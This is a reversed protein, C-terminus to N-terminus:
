HHLVSHVKKVIAPEGDTAYAGEGGQNRHFRTYKLWVKAHGFLGGYDMGWTGETSKRPRGKAFPSGGGVFWSSYKGDVSCAAWPAVCHPHGSRKCDSMRYRLPPCDGRDRDGPKNIIPKRPHGPDTCVGYCTKSTCTPCGHSELELPELELAESEFSKLERVEDSPVLPQHDHETSESYWDSEPVSHPQSGIETSVPTTEVTVLPREAPSDCWGVLCLCCLSATLSVRMAVM